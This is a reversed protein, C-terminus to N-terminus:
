PGFPGPCNGVSVLVTPRLPPVRTSYIFYAQVSLVTGSAPQRVTWDMEIIKSENPKLEFRTLDPTLPKEDSWRRLVVASDSVWIDLISQDSLEIVQVGTGKNMVTARLNIRDGSKACDSSAWIEAVLPQELSAVSTNSVPKSLCGVLVAILAWLTFILNTRM